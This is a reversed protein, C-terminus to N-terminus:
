RALAESEALEGLGPTAHDPWNRHPHLGSECEDGLEAFGASHGHGHLFTLGALDGGTQGVGAACIERRPGVRSRCLRIRDDCTGFRGSLEGAEDAWLDLQHQVAQSPGVGLQARARLGGDAVGRWSGEGARDLEAGVGFGTELGTVGELLEGSLREACRGRDVEESGGHAAARCPCSPAPVAIVRAAVQSDDGGPQSGAGHSRGVLFGQSGGAAGGRVGPGSGAQWGADDRGIPIEAACRVKGAVVGDGEGDGVSRGVGGTSVHGEGDGGVGAVGDSSDLDGCAAVM